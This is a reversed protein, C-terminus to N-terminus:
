SLIYDMKVSDIQPTAASHIDMASDIKSRAPEAPDIEIWVHVYLKPKNRFTRPLSKPTLKGLPIGFVGYSHLM